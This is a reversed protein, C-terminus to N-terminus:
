TAYSVGLLRHCCRRRACARRRLLVQRPPQLVQWRGRRSRRQGTHGEGMLGMRWHGPRGLAGVLEWERRPHSRWKLYRGHTM